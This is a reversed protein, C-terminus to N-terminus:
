QSENYVVEPDWEELPPKKLIQSYITGTYEVYSQTDGKRLAEYNVLTGGLNEKVETEYGEEELLLSIM